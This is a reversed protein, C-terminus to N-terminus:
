FVPQGIKAAIEILEDFSELENPESQYYLTKAFDVLKRTEPFCLYEIKLNNEGIRIRDLANADKLLPM